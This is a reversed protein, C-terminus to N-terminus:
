AATGESMDLLELHQIEAQLWTKVKERIEAQSHHSSMVDVSKGDDTMPIFHCAPLAGSYREPVFNFLWCQPCPTSREVELRNPCSPSDLFVSLPKWSETGGYGGRELFELEKKLLALVERRSESM